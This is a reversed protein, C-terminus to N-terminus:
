RIAMSFLRAAGAARALLLITRGSGLHPGAAAGGSTRGDTRGGGAGGGGTGQDGRGPAARMRGRTASVERVRTHGDCRGPCVSMSVRIHVSLCPYPCVSASISVLADRRNCLCVSM